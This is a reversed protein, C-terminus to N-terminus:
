MILFVSFNETFGSVHAKLETEAPKWRFDFKFGFSTSLISPTLTEIDRRRMESAFSVNEQGKKGLSIRPVCCVDAIPRRL